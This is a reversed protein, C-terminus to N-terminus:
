YQDQKIISKIVAKHVDANDKFFFFSFQNLFANVGTELTNYAILTQSKSRLWKLAHKWHICTMLIIAIVQNLLLWITTTTLGPCLFPVRKTEWIVILVLNGVKVVEDKNM